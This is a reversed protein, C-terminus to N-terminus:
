TAMIRVILAFLFATTFAFKQLTKPEHKFRPDVASKRWTIWLLEIVAGLWVVGAGLISLLVVPYLGQYTKGYLGFSTWDPVPHTFGPGIFWGLAFSLGTLVLNLILKM